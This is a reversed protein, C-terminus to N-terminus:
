SELKRSGPLKWAKNISGSLKPNRKVAIARAEVCAKVRIDYKAQMKRHHKGM